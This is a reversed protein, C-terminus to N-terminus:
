ERFNVILSRFAEMFMDKTEDFSKEPHREQYEQICAMYAAYSMFGSNILDDDSINEIELNTDPVSLHLRSAVDTMFEKITQKENNEM